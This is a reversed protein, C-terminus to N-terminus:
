RQSPADKPAGIITIYRHPPHQDKLPKLYDGIDAYTFVIHAAQIKGDKKAKVKVIQLSFGTNIIGSTQGPKLRALAQSVAPAIDRNNKDIAFGYNGGQDKSTDDSFKKAVDAFKKGSHLEHLAKKARSNTKTDLKAIVKQTLLQNRLERRFDQVTWGWFEQLVDRFQQNSAGLRNQQRLLKVEQTVEKNTVHIHQRNAISKVYANNIAQTLAQKKYLALQTKGEKGKFNQEKQTTYYHMFHRLQFLYSEYSVWNKGAKAAPFPLVETIHYIFTSTSQYKYLALSTYTLFGVILVALLIISYKLFHRQLSKLPYIYRRSKTLIEERHSALNDNTIRPIDGASSGRKKRLSFKGASKGSEEAETRAKKTKKQM